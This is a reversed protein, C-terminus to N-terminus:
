RGKVEFAIRGNSIVAAPAALASLDQLPNRTLLLVDAEFGTAIRGISRERGLLMANTVTVARIAERVSLGCRTLNVAESAIRGGSTTGYGSDSGAGVPVGLARARRVAECLPGLMEKGRIALEPHDYDGGPEIMEKIVEITPVFYTSKSKMLRLTEEDVYTDHELSRVGARVAALAGEQGHAHAQVPLGLARAADVLERLDKETYTSIRPDTGPTGARQTAMVKIWQVGRSANARAVRVLAAGTWAGGELDGLAPHNLFIQPALAPRLHYGSSLIDPGPADGRKVLEALAVDAYEAVGASRASTVGSELARALAEANEIHVHADILGPFLYLGTADVVRAAALPQSGISAIRGARINLYQNPRITGSTVDVIHGNAIALAEPPSSQALLAAAAAPIALM